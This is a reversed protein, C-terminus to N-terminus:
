EKSSTNFDKVNDNLIFKVSKDEIVSPEEYFPDAKYGCGSLSLLFM